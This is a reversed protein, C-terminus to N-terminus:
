HCSRHTASCLGHQPWLAGPQVPAQLVMCSTKCDCHCLHKPVGLSGASGLLGPLQCPVAEMTDAQAATM